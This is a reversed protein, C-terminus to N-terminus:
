ESRLVSTPDAHAARRAPYWCAVASVALFAAVSSALTAPDVAEVGFLLGSWARSTAITVAVGAVVGWMVPLMGERVAMRVLRRPRAGLAARISLERARRVITAAVVGGIGVVGLVFALGAFSGLLVTRFRAGATTVGVVDAMSQLNGVPIMPDIGRIAARVAPAAVMPDGAVHVVVIGGLRWTSDAVQAHAIYMTPRPADALTFQKSDRVIGVVERPTEGFARARLRIRKGIADDNPWEARAMSESIVMAPARGARDEDTLARGRVLQVNMTAFYGPTVVRAEASRVEGAPREPQGDIDYTLGNYDTTLPLIDISGMRQVGPIGKIAREMTAYLQDIAAHTPYRQVPPGFAFTLIGDTRVGPDQRLLEALSRTLLGAGAVLTVAVAVEAAVLGQRFRRERRSMGGIRDGGRLADDASRLAATFAPAAGFLMTSIFAVGATYGLVIGDLGVGEVRPLRDGALAIVADTAFTGLIIGTVMGGTALLAHETMLQRLLRWRSAGLAARVALERRREQARSLALSAANTCAILLVLGVAGLLVFLARRVPGVIRDTVPVLAVGRNAHTAYETALRASVADVASQAQALSVNPRLRAIATYARGARNTALDQAFYAPSVRWVDPAGYSEGSLRPDELALPAVGVVNYEVDNLRVTRGVIATDASFARTWLGHSLVIRRVSGPQNEDARFFRGAAPALGFIDFYGAGVSAGALREAGDLHQLVPTWEDYPSAASFVDTRSAWDTFDPLSVTVSTRDSGREVGVLQVVRDPEAYPLPKLLVGRVISFTATNAGIGLALTAVIALAYGPRRALSSLSQRLDQRLTDFM